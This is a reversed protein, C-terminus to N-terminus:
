TKQVPRFIYLNNMGYIFREHTQLEFDITNLMNVIDRTWLGGVEGAKMGGRKKDESYWWLAHGITGLLPDIMSIIIRGGPNLLRKAEGLVKERYPIHNLCAIFTITDFSHDPFRLNSTDAVVQVEGGWDHIDVGIGNGYEKVLRNRGAGIDLLRGRIHPLVASIREDELTTWGFKPLWEQDFLLLRCPIGIFDWLQQSATKERKQM